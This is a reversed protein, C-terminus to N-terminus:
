YALFSLLLSPVRVANYRDCTDEESQGKYRLTVKAETEFALKGTPSGPLLPIRELAADLLPGKAQSIRRKALTVGEAGGHHLM